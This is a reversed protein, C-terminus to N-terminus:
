RRHCPHYMLKPKKEKLTLLINNLGEAVAKAISGRGCGWSGRCPNELCLKRSSGRGYRKFSQKRSWLAFVIQLNISLLHGEFYLILDEKRLRERLSSKRSAEAAQVRHM